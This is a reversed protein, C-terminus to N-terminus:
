GAFPLNLTKIRAQALHASQGGNRDRRVETPYADEKLKEFEIFARSGDASFDIAFPSRGAPIRTVQLTRVDLVWVYGGSSSVGWIEDRKPNARIGSPDPGVPVTAAPALRVMESCLGLNSQSIM